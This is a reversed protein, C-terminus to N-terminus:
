TLNVNQNKNKTNYSHKNNNKQTKIAHKNSIQTTTIM